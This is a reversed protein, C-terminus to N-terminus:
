NNIVKVQFSANEMFAHSYKKLDDFTLKDLIRVEDYVTNFVEDFPDFQNAVAEQSDMMAIYSGLQENKQLIFEDELGDLNILMKNLVSDLSSIFKDADDTDSAIMAFHYARQNDFETSFSDDIIGNKFLDNYTDANESFFLDFFLSIAIEYKIKEDGSPVLDNGRIGIAVKPRVVDFDLFEKHTEESKPLNINRKFKIEENFKKSNQNEIVWELTEDQDINGVVFLSMNNPQYFTDYATNLDNVTIQNISEVSGAIDKAMASDPYMQAITEFYLQNDPDNKYMNIEQKIIHKEKEVKADTFYPQQVFDLLIDLNERVKMTTSFLYSTKTFSTFANASAGTKNFLEFVDYNQKDFLKHELFHAIGAPQQILKGNVNFSTDVSGFNTSLVAYTKKYDKMPLLYVSLGNPLKEWYLTEKFNNYNIKKM